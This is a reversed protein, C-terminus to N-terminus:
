AVPVAPAPPPEYVVQAPALAEVRSEAVNRLQAAFGLILWFFKTTSVDVFNSAVIMGVLTATLAVRLDFLSDGRKIKRLPRFASYWGALFLALGVLGLEVAIYLATNHPERSWGAFHLQYVTLYFRDYAEVSNGTGWGIIPHQLFATWDVKWISTRGAGGSAIADSVRASVGPMLALAGLAPIGIAIGLLRRRSFWIVVASIAGVALLAERSLSALIAALIVAVAALSAFIMGPSRARTLALLAFAFPALLSDAYINQDLTRGFMQITARSGMKAYLTPDAHFLYLGYLAAIVGGALTALALFRLQREDIPAIVTAAYCLILGGFFQLTTLAHEDVSRLVNVLLWGLFLTWIVMAVPPRRLRRLRFAHVVLFVTIGLALYRTLGGAGPIALIEDFPILLAYLGFPFVYPWRIAVLALLPAAGLLLVLFLLAYDGTGIAAAVGTVLLGVAAAGLILTTRRDPSSWGPLWLVM